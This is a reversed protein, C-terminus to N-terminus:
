TGRQTQISDIYALLDDIDDADFTFNPMDRHGVLIGEAFAEQLSDVPYRKSLTRLPPALPHRSESTADIAHCSACQLAAIQAGRAIADASTPVPRPEEIGACAALTLALAAFAALSL